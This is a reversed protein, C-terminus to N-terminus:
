PATPRVRLPSWVRCLSHVQRLVAATSQKPWLARASTHQVTCTAHEAPIHQVNILEDLREFDIDVEDAALIVRHTGSLAKSGL